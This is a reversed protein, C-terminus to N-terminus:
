LSLMQEEIEKLIQKIYFNSLGMSGKSDVLDMNKSDGIQMEYSNPNHCKCIKINIIKRDKLANIIQRKTRNIKSNKM